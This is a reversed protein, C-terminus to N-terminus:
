GEYYNSWDPLLNGFAFIFAYAAAPPGSLTLHQVRLCATLQPLPHAAM